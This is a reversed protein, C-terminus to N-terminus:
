LSTVTVTAQGSQSGATEAVFWARVIGAGPFTILKFDGVGSLSIYKTSQNGELPLNLLVRPDALGPAPSFTSATLTLRYAGAPVELEAPASKCGDRWAVVNLAADVTLRHVGPTITATATGTNDAHNSDLFWARVIGGGPLSFTRRAGLGNLVLYGEPGGAALPLGILLYDDHSPAGRSLNSATLIITYDGPALAPSEIPVAGCGSKWALLENSTVTLSSSFRAPAGGDPFLTGNASLTQVELDAVALDSPANEISSCAPILWLVVAGVAVPRM